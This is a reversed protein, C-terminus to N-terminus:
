QTPANEGGCVCFWLDGCVNEGIKMLPNSKAKVNRKKSTVLKKRKM